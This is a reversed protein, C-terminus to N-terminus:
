RRGPRRCGRCRRVRSPKRLLTRSRSGRRHPPSSGSRPRRSWIELFSRLSSVGPATGVRAAPGATFARDAPKMDHNAAEPISHQVHPPNDDRAEAYHRGETTTDLRGPLADEIALAPRALNIREVDGIQGAPDGAHNRAAVAAGSAKIGVLPHLWLVLALDVIEDHERHRGRALREIIRVPM